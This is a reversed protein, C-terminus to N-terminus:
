VGFTYTPKTPTLQEAQGRMSKRRHLQEAPFCVSDLMPVTFEFVTMLSSEDHGDDDNHVADLWYHHCDYRHLQKLQLFLSLGVQANSYLSILIGSATALTVLTGVSAFKSDCSFVFDPLFLSLSLFSGTGLLPFFPPLNFFSSFSYLGFILIFWSSLFSFPLLVSFTHLVRPFGGYFLTASSLSSTSGFTDKM